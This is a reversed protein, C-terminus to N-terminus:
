ILQLQEPLTIGEQFDFCQQSLRLAALECYREDIEIGVAHRGLNRAAILTTGSGSFPDLICELESAYTAILKSIAGLPKQNPHLLPGGGQWDFVDSIARDPKKPHGKALLYADEHQARTFQGLGWRDKILALHSVPRFGIQKWTSLFTDAHPWGYFSLCLSDTKLVRWTEAFVPLLWSSDADGEILGQDSGWRGSYSVLYPPDTVVLDFSDFQLEPLIERCDGHYLTVGDNEFYPEPLM